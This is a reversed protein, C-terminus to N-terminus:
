SDTKESSDYPTIIRPKILYPGFGSSSLSTHSLFYEQASFTSKSTDKRSYDGQSNLEWSNLVDSFSIVMIQDLVQQHVTPNEIPVMIEFRKDLNRPMWDASSIFVKAQESPLPHGNGFCYIRTHELFRGIISKVTINESFKKLGPRLCCTGRVILDIKVGNSSAEYLLEIIKPDTLANMKAWIHAPKGKKAFEIEQQIHHEFEKRLFHPAASIKSLGNLHAYGTMFNFLLTADSTLKPDATLLSLDTYVRATRPNYNGTGFHVYNKLKGNERRVILAIKAHTKLGVIGYVVHVGAQELDKAWKINTEEDFRAKLEIVATVSKGNEAAKILNKIIPSQNGTRYVTQKIVIVDPDTAAQELFKLVVDFSEYPHHLIIDKISIAEFLNNNLNRIRQPFRPTFDKFELDKRSGDILQSLDAVGLIADIVFVEQPNVGLKESVYLRLPESTRGNMSLLVIEGRMQQKLAITFSSMLDPVDDIVEIEMDRLARFIGKGAIIYDEFLSGIFLDVVHELLIYRLDKTPLKIFRGLQPPLPVFAHLVERKQKSFLEVAFCIGRCPIRPVPHSTDIAMPTLAPFINEKYYVELWEKEESSLEKPSIVSIGNSRLERRLLRWTKVQDTKLKTTKQFLQSLMEDITLGDISLFNDKEKKLRILSGIKVMFFEDLNNASISLFRLRELLPYTPNVSEALVRENFSLWSFEPNIFKESDKIPEKKPHSQSM